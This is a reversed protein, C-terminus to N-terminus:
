NLFGCGYEFIILRCSNDLIAIIYDKLSQLRGGELELSVDTKLIFPLHIFFISTNM